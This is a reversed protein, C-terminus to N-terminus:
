PATLMSPSELAESTCAATATVPNCRSPTGGPIALAYDHEPVEAPYDTSVFHAGVALAADRRSTDGLYPEVSDSDARTRVLMNAALAASIAAADSVPDNLVAIAAFPDGPASDPFLLRGDLSTEDHTYARRHAGTDDLTFMVMGRTAGLTPWGRMAIAAGVSELGGQVLAPTVIRERVFVSLLEAHLAAFYAEYDAPTGDKLELQVVIPHHGPHADSFERLSELCRVLERCTTVDDVVPLHYVEFVGTAPSRRLDLEVHRVGLARAQEELSRHTYAWAELENGEPEVHYSNHTSKAQLHALTLVDDRPYDFKTQTWAPPVPASEPTGCGVAPTLGLAALLVLEVLAVRRM